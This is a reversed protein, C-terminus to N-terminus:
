ISTHMLTPQLFLGVSASTKLSIRWHELFTGPCGRWVSRADAMIYFVSIIRISKKKQPAVTWSPCIPLSGWHKLAQSGLTCSSSLYDQIPGWPPGSSSEHSDFCKARLYYNNLLLFNTHESQYKINTHIM